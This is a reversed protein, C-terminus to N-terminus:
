EPKSARGHQHFDDSFRKPAVMSFPPKGSDQWLLFVEDGLSGGPAVENGPIEMIVTVSGDAVERKLNSSM